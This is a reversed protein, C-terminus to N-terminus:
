IGVFTIIFSINKNISTWVVLILIGLVKQSIETKKHIIIIM